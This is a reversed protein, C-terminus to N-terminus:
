VWRSARSGTWQGRQEPRVADGCGRLVENSVRSWMQVWSYGHSLSMRECKGRESLPRRGKTKLSSAHVRCISIMKSSSPIQCSGGGVCGRLDLMRGGKPKRRECRSRYSVVNILFFFFSRMGPGDTRAQMVWLLERVQKRSEREVHESVTAVQIEEVCSQQTAKQGRSTANAGEIRADAKTPM